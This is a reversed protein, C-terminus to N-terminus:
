ISLRKIMPIQTQDSAKIYKYISMENEPIKTISWLFTCNIDAHEGEWDMWLKSHSDFLVAKRRIGLTPGLSKKYVEWCQRFFDIKGKGLTIAQLLM